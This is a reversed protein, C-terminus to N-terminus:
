LPMVVGGLKPIADYTAKDIKLHAMVLEPPTHTLWESLALDQYVAAIGLESALEPSGLHVPRGEFFISGSDAQYAGSIIKTLTSKGAGNDGVLAMVEGAEVEFDVGALAVVSGFRKQIDSLALRPPRRDSFRDEM